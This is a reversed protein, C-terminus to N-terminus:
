TGTSSKEKPASCGAFSNTPLLLELCYTLLLKISRKLCPACPLYGIHVNALLVGHVRVFKCNDERLTSFNIRKISDTGALPLSYNDVLSLCTCSDLLKAVSLLAISWSGIPLSRLLDVRSFLGYLLFRRRVTRGDFPTRASIHIAERTRTLTAYLQALIPLFLTRPQSIALCFACFHM